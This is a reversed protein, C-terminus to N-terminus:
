QKFKKTFSNFNSEVMKIDEKIQKINNTNNGSTRPRYVLKGLKVAGEFKGGIWIRNSSISSFAPIESVTANTFSGTSKNENTATGYNSHWWHGTNDDIAWAPGGDTNSSAAYWSNAVPSQIPVKAYQYAIAVGDTEEAKAEMPVAIMGLVMAFSLLFSLIRKGMKKSMKKM